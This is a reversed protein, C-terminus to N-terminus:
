RDPRSAVLVVCKAAQDLAGRADQWHAVAVSDVGAAWLVDGPARLSKDQSLIVVVPNNHPQHVSDSM